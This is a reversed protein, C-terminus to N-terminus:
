ALLRQQPDMSLAERPAIGFFSADFGDVSGLFGGHRQYTKGPVDPNPDYHAAIDWRAPPVESVADVGDRLLRWFAEPTEAAM